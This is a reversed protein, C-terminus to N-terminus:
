MDWYKNRKSGNKKIIIIKIKINMEHKSHKIHTNNEFIIESKGLNSKKRNKKKTKEKPPPPSPTNKNKNEGKKFFIKKKKSNAIEQIKKRIKGQNRL